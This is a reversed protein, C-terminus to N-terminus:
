IVTYFFRARPPCTARAIWFCIPQKRDITTKLYRYDDVSGKDSRSAVREAYSVAQEENVSAIRSLDVSEVNGDADYTVSFYRMEFPTERNFGDRGTYVEAPLTPGGANPQEGGSQEPFTQPGFFTGGNKALLALREDATNNLAIIDAVNIASVIVLVVAAVALMAALVFKRRLKKIM